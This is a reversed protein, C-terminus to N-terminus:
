GSRPLDASAATPNGEAPCSSPDWGGTGSSGSVAEGVAWSGRVLSIIDWSSPVAISMPSEAPGAQKLLAFGKQAFLAEDRGGAQPQCPNLLIHVPKRLCTSAYRPFSPSQVRRHSCWHRFLQPFWALSFKFHHANELLPSAKKGRYEDQQITYIQHVSRTVM